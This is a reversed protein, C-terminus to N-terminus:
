KRTTLGSGWEAQYVNQDVGIVFGNGLSGLFERYTEIEMNHKPLSFVAEAIITYIKTKSYVIM